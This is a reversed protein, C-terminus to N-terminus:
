LLAHEVYEWKASLFWGGCDGVGASGRPVDRAGACPGGYLTQLSKLI